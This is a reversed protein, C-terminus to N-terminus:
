IPFNPKHSRNSLYCPFYFTVKRLSIRNCIAHVFHSWYSNSTSRIETCALFTASIFFAESPNVGWFLWYSGYNLLRGPWIENRIVKISRNLIFLIIPLLDTWHDRPVCSKVSKVLHVVAQQHLGNLIQLMITNNIHTSPSVWGDPYTHFIGM